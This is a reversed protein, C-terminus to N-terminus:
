KSTAPTSTCPEGRQPQLRGEIQALRWEADGWYARDEAMRDKTEHYLRDDLDSWDREDETREDEEDRRM